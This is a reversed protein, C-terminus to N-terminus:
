QSITASLLVNCAKLVEKKMKILKFSLSWERKAFSVLPRRYNVPSDRVKKGEHKIPNIFTCLYVKM